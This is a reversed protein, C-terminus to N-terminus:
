LFIKKKALSEMKLIRDGNKPEHDGKVMKLVLLSSDPEEAM